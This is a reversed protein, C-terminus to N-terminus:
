CSLGNVSPIKKRENRSTKKRLGTLTTFSSHSFPSGYPLRVRGSSREWRLGLQLLFGPSLLALWSIFFLAGAIARERPSLGGSRFIRFLAILPIIILIDDYLRHYTWLRAVIATVGLAIWIDAKRNMYLWLALAALLALSAPLIFDLLGASGLWKHVNGFGDQSALHSADRIWLEISALLGESRFHVALLTLLIYGLVVLAVPRWARESMLAM